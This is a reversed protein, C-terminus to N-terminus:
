STLVDRVSNWSRHPAPMSFNAKVGTINITTWKDYPTRPLNQLVGWSYIHITENEAMSVVFVRAGQRYHKSMWNPQFKEFYLIGKKELKTEIWGTKGGFNYFVDSMGSGISNEVRDAEGWLLFRPRLKNWLFTEKM